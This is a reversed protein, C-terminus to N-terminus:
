TIMDYSELHYREQVKKAEKACKSLFFYLKQSHLTKITLDIVYNSHNLKLRYKPISLSNMCSAFREM